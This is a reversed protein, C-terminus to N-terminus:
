NEQEDDTTSLRRRLRREKMNMYAELYADAKDAGISSSLGFDLVNTDFGFSEYGEDVLQFYDEDPRGLKRYERMVYAVCVQKSRMTKGNLRKVRLLFEQKYYYRPCGEYRDLRQEDQWSVKYVAAPVNWNADQEITAYAGTMSKKFLLRYGPIVTTGVLTSGPCRAKMREADLNSGYALIYSAASPVGKGFRPDAM